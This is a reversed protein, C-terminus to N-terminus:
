DRAGFLASGVRIFTAGNEIATKYDASMGMSFQTVGITDGLEKLMRFHKAADEDVPPICMLGIIELGLSHTCLDYFDRLSAPDIGAKQEEHGTNVQIFCPMHKGTRNMEDKVARAIKERDITHIVDFLAVAERVKNSQLPGILHLILDPYNKRTEEWHDKAEQIRNEGFNRLGADLAQQIESDDQQKSVAILTVGDPLHKLDDSLSFM